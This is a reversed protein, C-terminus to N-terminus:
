IVTVMANMTHPAFESKNPRRQNIMPPFTKINMPNTTPPDALFLLESITDMAKMPNTLQIM